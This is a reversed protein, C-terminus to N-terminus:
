SGEVVKQIEGSASILEVVEPDYTRNAFTAYIKM